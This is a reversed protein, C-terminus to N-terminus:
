QVIYTAVGIRSELATGNEDQIELPEMTPLYYM